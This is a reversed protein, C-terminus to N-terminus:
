HGPLMIPALLEIILSNLFYIGIMAIMISFDIGSVPPVIRRILGVIPEILQNVLMSAPHYRAQPIWSLIANIFLVFLVISFSKDILYLTAVKFVDIAHFQSLLIVAKSGFAVLIALSVAALNLGGIPPLIMGLPRVYFNTAKVTLQCLPSYFDAGALQFWIRFIVITLYLDFLLMMLSTLANM